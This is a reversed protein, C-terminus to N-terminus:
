SVILKLKLVFHLVDGFQDSYIFASELISPNNFIPSDQLQMMYTTLSGKLTDRDVYGRGQKLLMGEMRLSKNSDEGKRSVNGLNIKINLLRIHLPTLSVLESVAATGLYKHALNKQINQMNKVRAAEQLILKEDVFPGQKSLEKELTAIVENKNNSVYGQWLLNGFLLTMIAIFLILANYNRRSIKSLHSKDKYDMLFNPSKLDDSLALGITPIFSARESLSEPMTLKGLFPLDPTLVNLMESNIGLQNGIYDIISQYEQIGGSIYIKSVYENEFKMTYNQFTIELQRSLRDLAPLILKFLQEENLAFKEHYSPSDKSDIKFLVQRAREINVPVQVDHFAAKNKELEKILSQAM